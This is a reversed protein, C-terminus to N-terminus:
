FRWLDKLPQWLYRVMPACTEQDADGEFHIANHIDLSFINRWKMFSCLFLPNVSWVALPCMVIRCLWDLDLSAWVASHKWRSQCRGPKLPPSFVDVKWHTYPWHDHTEIVRRIAWLSKDWGNTRGQITQRLTTGSTKLYELFVGVMKWSAQLLAGLM